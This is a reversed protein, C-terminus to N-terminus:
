WKIEQTAVVPVSPEVQTGDAYTISTVTIKLTRVDTTRDESNMWIRWIRYQYSDKGPETVDDSRFSGSTLLRGDEDFLEANFRVTAIDQQTNNRFIFSIEGSNTFEATFDCKVISIEAPVTEEEKKLLKPILIAAVTIVVVAIAVLIIITRKKM